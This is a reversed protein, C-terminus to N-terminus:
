NIKVFFNSKLYKQCLNTIKFTNKVSQPLCMKFLIMIIFLILYMFKVLLTGINYVRCALHYNMIVHRRVFSKDSTWLLQYYIQCWCTITDTYCLGAMYGCLICTIHDPQWMVKAWFYKISSPINRGNMSTKISPSGNQSCKFSPSGCNFFDRLNWSRDSIKQVQWQYIKLISVGM